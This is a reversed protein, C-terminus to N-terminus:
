ATAKPCHTTSRRRCVGESGQPVPYHFKQPFIGCERPTTPLPVGVTCQWVAKPCHATSSRRTMVESRQPLPCHFKQPFIGCQRPAIPLPVGATCRWVAKPCHALVRAAAKPCHTTSSRRCVGESGQPLPCHFKQPFIGCQRPATPLFEQLQRPGTPLPVGATCQWVVKPCRATSSRRYVPVSGCQRPCCAHSGATCHWVALPCHATSTGCYM